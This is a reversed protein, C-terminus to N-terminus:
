KALRREMARDMAEAARKRADDAEKAYMDVTTGISSHGLVASVARIDGGMVDLMGVAASHRLSHLRVSPFGHRALAKAFAKTVVSRDRPQGDARSFVLVASRGQAKAVTMAEQALAPLYLTRRSKPTKPEVRRYEM